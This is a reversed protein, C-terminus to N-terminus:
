APPQKRAPASGYQYAQRLWQKCRSDFDATGTLVIHHTWIGPRPEVAQTILADDIRRDLVFTLAVCDPPRNKVWMAPMWIWAFKRRVAFSIQTKMMQERVPGLSELYERLAGALALAQPKGAMFSKLTHEQPEQM